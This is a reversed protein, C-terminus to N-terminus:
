IMSRLEELPLDYFKFIILYCFIAYFTSDSRKGYTTSSMLGNIFIKLERNVKMIPEYRVLGYLM